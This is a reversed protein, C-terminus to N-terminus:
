AVWAIPSGGAGGATCVEYMVCLVTRPLMAPGHHGCALWGRGPGSWCGAGGSAVGWTHTSPTCPCSPGSVVVVVIVVVIVVVVVVVVVVNVM